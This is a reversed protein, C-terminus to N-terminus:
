RKYQGTAKDILMFPANATQDILSHTAADEAAHKHLSM